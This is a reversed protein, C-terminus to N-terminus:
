LLQWEGKIKSRDPNIYGNEKLWAIARFITTEGIGLNDELESYKIKRNLKIAEYVNKYSAISIPPKKDNASTKSENEEVQSPKQRNEEVLYGQAIANQKAEMGRPSIREKVLFATILDLDFEPLGNGNEELRDQVELVGWSYRNVYGLVRMGEAIVPNRYDNVRPFNQSNAKGYLGGPNLIEIRDDYQYFQVPGNGTYDRHCVANM